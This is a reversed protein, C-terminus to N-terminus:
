HKFLYLYAPRRLMIQFVDIHRNGAILEDDDGPERAGPFRREREVRKIRFSLPTVDFAEGGVGPLEEVPHLLRLDFMDLAERRCDRDFLSRGAARRPRRDCGHGFNIIIQAQQIRMDPNRVTRVAPPLELRLRGLRDRLLQEGQLRSPLHHNQGREDAAFLALVAVHEIRDAVFSEDAGADVPLDDREVSFIQRHEFLRLPMGHFRHHVAQDGSLEFRRAQGIRDLEGQAVAAACQGDQEIRRLPFFGFEALLREAFIEGADM